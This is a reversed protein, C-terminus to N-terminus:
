DASRRRRTEVLYKGSEENRVINGRGEYPNLAGGYMEIFNDLFKKAEEFTDFSHTERIMNNRRQKENIYDSLPMGQEIMSRLEIDNLQAIKM